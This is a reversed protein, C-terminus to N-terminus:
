KERKDLWKTLLNLVKYIGIEEAVTTIFNNWAKDFEEYEKLRKLCRSQKDKEM